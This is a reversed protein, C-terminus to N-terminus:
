DKQLQDIKIEIRELRETINDHRETYYINLMAMREKRDLIYQQYLDYDLKGSELKAIQNCHENVESKLTGWAIAVMVLIVTVSLILRVTGNLKDKQM